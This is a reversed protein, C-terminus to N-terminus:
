EYIHIIYPNNKKIKKLIMRVLAISKLYRKLINNNQSPHSKIILDIGYKESIINKKLVIKKLYQKYLSDVM